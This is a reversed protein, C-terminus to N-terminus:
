RNLINCASDRVIVFHRCGQIQDDSLAVSSRMLVSGCGGLGDGGDRQGVGVAVGFAKRLLEAARELAVAEGDDGIVADRGVQDVAGLLLRLGEERQGLLHLAFIMM